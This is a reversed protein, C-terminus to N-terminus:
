FLPASHQIVDTIEINQFVKSADTKSVNHTVKIKVESGIAKELLAPIDSPKFDDTTFLGLKAKVFFQSKPTIRQYETINAGNFEGSSVIFRWKITPNEDTLDLPCSDIKATYSGEPMLKFKSGADWSFNLESM